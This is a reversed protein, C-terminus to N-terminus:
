FFDPIFTLLVGLAFAIVGCLAVIAAGIDYPKKLRHAAPLGWIIAALGAITVLIYLYGINM